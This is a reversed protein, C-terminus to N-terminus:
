DTVHLSFHRDLCRSQSRARNVLSQVLTVVETSLASSGIAACLTNRQMVIGEESSLWETSSCSLWPVLDGDASSFVKTPPTGPQVKVSLATSHSQEVPLNGCDDFYLMHLMTPLQQRAELHISGWVEKMIVDLKQAM